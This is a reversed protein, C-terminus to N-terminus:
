IDDYKQMIQNSATEVRMELSKQKDIFYTVLDTDIQFAKEAVASKDVLSIRKHLIEHMPDIIKDCAARRALKAAELSQLDRLRETQISIAADVREVDETDFINPNRLLEQKFKVLDDVAARLTDM